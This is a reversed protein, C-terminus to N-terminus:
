LRDGQTARESQLHWACATASLIAAAVVQWYGASGLMEFQAFVFTAVVMVVGSAAIGAFSTATRRWLLHAGMAISLLFLGFAVLLTGDARDAAHGFPMIMGAIFLLGSMSLPVLLGGIEVVKRM